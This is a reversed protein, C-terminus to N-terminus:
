KFMSASWQPWIRGPAETALSHTQRTALIETKTLCMYKFAYVNFPKFRDNVTSLWYTNAICCVLSRQWDLIQLLDHRVTSIPLFFTSTSSPRIKPKQVNYHSLIGVNRLSTSGGDEPYSFQNWYSSFHYLPFRKDATDFPKYYVDSTVHTHCFPLLREEIDLARLYGFSCEKSPVCAESSTRRIFISVRNIYYYIVLTNVHNLHDAYRVPLTISVLSLSIISPFLM